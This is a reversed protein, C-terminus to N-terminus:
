VSWASLPPHKDRWPRAAELEGALRFLTDEGGYAATFMMGIPLNRPNWCLPVSMAPVGTVNALPTFPCYRWMQELYADLDGSNADLVGLKIPPQALTPTLMVDWDQMFAGLRRGLDTRFQLAKSLDVGSTALGRHYLALNCREVTTHDIERCRDIATQQVEAAMSVALMTTVNHHLEQASYDVSANVVDHGLDSLLTTTEDLAALCDPHVNIGQARGDCVAVRLRQPAASVEQLYPRKKPPATYPAGTDVGGSIDLMLASDRVSRTIAHHTMLGYWFEGDTPGTPVRGRSPKLGFVGNCSAPVRISGAGDNGYAIPIIGAAVAAGGGGGSGGSSRSADWPNRCPGHLQSETTLSSSFEPVNTTGMPILGAAKYRKVVEADFDIVTGRALRSGFDRAVGNVYGVCDKMALPVGAFEAAYNLNRSQESASETQVSVFANLPENLQAVLQYALELLQQPDIEGAKVSQALTLGDCDAYQSFNM